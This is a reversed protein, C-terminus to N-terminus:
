RPGRFVGDACDRGRRTGDGAEDTPGAAVKLSFLARGVQVVGASAAAEGSERVQRGDRMSVRRELAGGDSQVVDEGVAPGFGSAAGRAKEASGAQSCGEGADENAWRRFM